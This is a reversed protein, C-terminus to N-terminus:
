ESDTGKRNEEDAKKQQNRLKDAKERLSQFFETEVIEEVQKKRKAEDIQIKLEEVTKRLSQERQYVKDVMGRFVNQLTQIEDPFARSTKVSELTELGTKYEAEGIHEAAQALTTLPRAFLQAGMYVMFLLVAYTIAFAVYIRQLIEQQVERVYDAEFDVGLVAVVEDNSNRIPAFASVWSGFDDGYPTPRCDPQDYYACGDPTDDQLTLREMGSANPGINDTKWSQKYFAFDESTTSICRGWSTIFILEGEEPGLIFTYLSARPEIRRINCLTEVQNWYRPDDTLGNADPEVEAILAGLEDGNITQVPDNDGLIGSETAGRVTGVLDETIQQMASETAFRYFWYYAVAFVITFILTFGVMLKTRLSVFTGENVKSVTHTM